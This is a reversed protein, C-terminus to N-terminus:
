IISRQEDLLSRLEFVVEHRRDSQAVKRACYGEICARLSFLNTLHAENIQTIRVGANRVFEVLGEDALQLLAERVPTRSIGAQDALVQESVLVGPALRGCIIADRISVIARERLS